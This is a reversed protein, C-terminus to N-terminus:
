FCNKSVFHKEITCLKWSLLKESVNWLESYKIENVSSLDFRRAFRHERCVGSKRFESVYNIFIYINIGRFKWMANFECRCWKSYGMFFIFGVVFVRVISSKRMRRFRTTKGGNKSRIYPMTSCGQGLPTGLAPAPPKWCFLTNPAKTQHWFVNATAWLSGDM